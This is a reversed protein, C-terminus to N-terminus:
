IVLVTKIPVRNRDQMCLFFVRRSKTVFAGFVVLSNYTGLTSARHPRQVFETGIDDSFSKRMHSHCAARQICIPFLVPRNAHAPCAPFARCRGWLALLEHVNIFTRPLRWRKRRCEYPDGSFYVLSHERSSQSAAIQM